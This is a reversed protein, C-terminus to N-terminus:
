TRGRFSSPSREDNSRLPRLSFAPLNQVVGPQCSPRLAVPERWILESTSAKKQKLRNDTYDNGWNSTTHWRRRSSMSPSLHHLYSTMSKSSAPGSGPVATLLLACLPRTLVPVWALPDEQQSSSIMPVRHIYRYPASTRPRTRETNLWRRSSTTSQPVALERGTVRSRKSHADDEAVVLPVTAHSIGGQNRLDLKSRCARPQHLDEAIRSAGMMGRKVKVPLESLLQFGMVKLLLSARGCPTTWILERLTRGLHLSSNHNIHVASSAESRCCTGM